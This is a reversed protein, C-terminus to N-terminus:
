FSILTGGRRAPHTVWGREDYEVLHVLGKLDLLFDDDVKARRSFRINEIPLGHICRASLANIVDERIGVLSGDYLNISKLSKFLQRGEERGLTTTENNDELSGIAMEAEMGGLYSALSRREGSLDLFDLNGGGLASLFSQVASNSVSIEQLQPARDSLAVWDEEKVDCNTTFSTALSMPLLSIDPMPTETRPTQLFTTISQRIKVALYHQGHSDHVDFQLTSNRYDNWTLNVTAVTMESQSVGNGSYSQRHARLFAALPQTSHDTPTEPCIASTFTIATQSSLSIHSLLDLESKFSSGEIILQSLQLLPVVDFHKPIPIHESTFMSSSSQLSLYSLRPTQRLLNLWSTNCGVPCHSIALSTLNTTFLPSDLNFWCRALSLSHLQPIAAQFIDDPVNVDGLISLSRLKPAPTSILRPLLKGFSTKDLALKLKEIRFSEAFVDVLEINSPPPLHPVSRMNVSLSRAQSRELFMQIAPTPLTDVLIDCWLKPCELAVRRWHQSVYTM